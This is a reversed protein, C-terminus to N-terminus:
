AVRRFFEVTTALGEEFGIRPRFGLARVALDISAQSHRVDGARPPLFEPNPTVGLQKGITALLDLLTYRSGCAINMAEGAGEGRTCAALNADVVNDVYTFDRSQGGDGYVTPREGRVLATIFRPIVAAYQSNPDQRPGFVNFYRLSVTPLGMGRAFVRAYEEGALKSAAYPSLPSLPMGEHKPLTPTDGYVSSSSAWVVRRVGKERAAQFVNVTGHVNVSTSEGPHEVSRPVSGLAAEHLVFEVGDCAARCAELDRIDAEFWTFREPGAARVTEINERKGTALNDLARVEHGDRLLREAIHSGIFGAAGTVLYRAM